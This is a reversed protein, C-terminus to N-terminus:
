RSELVLHRRRIYDLPCGHQVMPHLLPMPPKQATEGSMIREDVPEEDAPEPRQQQQRGWSTNRQPTLTLRQGWRRGTAGLGSGRSRTPRGGDNGNQGSPLARSLGHAASSQALLMEVDEDPSHQRRM